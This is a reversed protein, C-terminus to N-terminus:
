ACAKEGFYLYIALAVLAPVAATLYMASYGFARAVIGWLVAGAGIGLDFASFFTGNAAGRRNPPVDRVALAQMSPQVLGFGIGYFVGALLFMWLYEAQSFLLMAAVVFLLGPIVVANYGKRDVMIGSLPRTIALTIAYFIFFIGANSIGKEGAYLAIFTVVSGYTTTVFFMVVAPRFAKKEFFVGQEGSACQPVQRYKIAGALFLSLFSLFASLFFLITFNENRLSSIAFVPENIIYMGAAPAVAMAIVVTLGFYGMGEGLRHRPIVDAAVTGSSTTAAGWGFGHIFRMLLLVFVSFAWNYALVSLLFILIGALFIIKRGYLDLGAGAFPRILVASVTFCGVVLGAIAEDGGLYVAFAPLTPMLMQFGLFLTLNALCVLIFDRTWLEDANNALGTGSDGAEDVVTKRFNKKMMGRKKAL